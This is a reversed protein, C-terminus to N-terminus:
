ESRRVRGAISAVERLPVACLREAARDRVVNRGSIGCGAIGAVCGRRPQPRGEVVGPELDRVITRDARITM